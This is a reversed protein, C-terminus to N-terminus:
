EASFLTIKNRIALYTAPGIGSVDKVMELAGFFTSARFAVLANSLSSSLGSVEHITEADAKNINVKAIKETTCTDSVDVQPAIYYSKDSQRLVFSTDYALTDANNSVGGAATLLDYMTAGSPLVYTGEKMVEGSISYAYTNADSVISTSTTAANSISNSVFGYGVLGVITVIVIIILTKM